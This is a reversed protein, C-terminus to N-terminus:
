KQVCRVSDKIFESRFYEGPVQSLDKFSQNNEKVFKRVMGSTKREAEMLDAAQLSYPERPLTTFSYYFKDSSAYAFGNLIQYTCDFNLPTAKEENFCGVLNLIGERVYRKMLSLCLVNKEELELNNCGLGDIAKESYGRVIATECYMAKGSTASYAQSFGITTLTGVTVIVATFFNFMKMIREKYLM